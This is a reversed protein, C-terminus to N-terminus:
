QEPSDHQQLSPVQLKHLSWNLNFRKFVHSGQLTELQLFQSVLMSVHSTHRSLLNKLKRTFM